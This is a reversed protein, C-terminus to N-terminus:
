IFRIVGGSQRQQPCHPRGSRLVTGAVARSGGGGMRELTGARCRPPIEGVLRGYEHHGARWVTPWLSRRSAGTRDGRPSFHKQLNFQRAACPGAFSAVPQVGHMGSQPGPNGGGPQPIRLRLGSPYISPWSYKMECM